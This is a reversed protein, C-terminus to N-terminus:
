GLLGPGTWFVIRKGGLEEIVLSLDGEVGFLYADPNSKAM